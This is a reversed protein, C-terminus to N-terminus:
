NVSLSVSSSQLNNRVRYFFLAQNDSVYFGVLPDGYLKGQQVVTGAAVNLFLYRGDDVIVMLKGAREQPPTVLKSGIATQWILKGSDPNLLRLMGGMSGSVIGQDTMAMMLSPTSFCRQWLVEGNLTDLVVIDGSFTTVAVRREDLLLPRYVMEHFLQRRWVQQGTETDLAWVVGDQGGAILQGKTIVPPYVWGNGPKVNWRAEGNEAVLSRIVGDKGAFYITGEHEVPSFVEEGVSQHWLLEGSGRDLGYLGAAGGAFVMAEGVVPEHLQIGNLAHWVAKGTVPDFRSLGQSAVFLDDQHVPNDIPHRMEGAQAMWSVLGIGFAVLFRQM